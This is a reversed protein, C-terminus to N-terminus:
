QKHSDHNIAMMTSSSGGKFQPLLPVTTTQFQISMVSERLVMYGKTSQTIVTNVTLTMNSGNFPPDHSM